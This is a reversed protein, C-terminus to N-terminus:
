VQVGDAKKTCGVCNVFPHDLAHYVVAHPGNYVTYEIVVHLKVMFRCHM